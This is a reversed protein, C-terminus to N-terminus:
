DSEPSGATQLARLLRNRALRASALRGEVEALKRRYREAGPPCLPVNMTGLCDAMETIERLSFGTDLLLRIHQVRKVDDLAFCRYGNAARAPRLLGLREYHRLSRESAGTRRSLEGIRM